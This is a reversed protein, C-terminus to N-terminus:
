QKEPHEEKSLTVKGDLKTERFLVANRDQSFSWVMFMGSFTVMMRCSTNASQLVSDDTVNKDLRVDISLPAKEEHEDRELIIRGLV